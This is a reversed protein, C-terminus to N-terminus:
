LHRFKDRAKENSKQDEEEVCKPCGHWANNPNYMIKHKSCYVTESNPSTSDNDGNGRMSNITGIPILILLILVVSQVLLTLNRIKLKPILRFIAITLAISSIILLLFAIFSDYRVWFIIGSVLGLGFGIKSLHVTWENYDQFRDSQKGKRIPKKVTSSKKTIEEKVKGSNDQTSSTNTKRSEISDTEGSLAKKKLENFEETTIAGQDLLAKLKKIEEITDM